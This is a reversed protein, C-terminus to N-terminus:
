PPTVPRTWQKDRLVEAIQIRYGEYLESKGIPIVRRHEPNRMWARLADADQWYSISIVKDQTDRSLFTEKSIFGEIKAAEVLMQTVLERNRAEMGPTVDFEIICMM